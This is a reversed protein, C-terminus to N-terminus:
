RPGYKVKTRYVHDDSIHLPIREFLAPRPQIALKSEFSTISVTPQGLLRLSPLMM